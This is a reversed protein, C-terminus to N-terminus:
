YVASGRFLISGFIEKNLPFGWGLLIFLFFSAILKVGGSGGVEKGGLPAVEVAVDKILSSVKKAFM